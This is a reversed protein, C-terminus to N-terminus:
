SPRVTVKGESIQELSIGEKRLNLLSEASLERIAGPLNKNQLRDGGLSGVGGNGRPKKQFFISTKPDNAIADLFNEITYPRGESDLLIEGSSDLIEYGNESKRIRSEVDRWVYNFHEDSGGKKSYYKEFELQISQKEISQKFENFDKEAQSLKEELAKIRKDKASLNRQFEQEKEQLRQDFLAKYQGEKKLRDEEEKKLRDSKEKAIKDLELKAKKLAQKQRNYANLLAKPDRIEDESEDDEILDSNEEKETETESKIKENDASEISDEAGLIETKM